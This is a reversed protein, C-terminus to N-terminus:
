SGERPERPERPLGLIREGIITRQIENSGGYISSVRQHWYRAHWDPGVGAPLGDAGRELDSGLARMGLEYIRQQMHSRCLKAIINARRAGTRESTAAALYNLRWCEILAQLKAVEIRQAEPVPGRSALIAWAEDLPRQFYGAPFRSSGREIGLTTNAIRWGENEDAVRQTVPIRVDTLFVEAFGTGGTLQKIPRVEVGDLSLDVLVYSIGKRKPADPDTRVLCFMKNAYGGNSCWTKQGNIVYHDGDREARTRLSALDSGANPESFGQCWVDECSLIRPLLEAQQEATGVAMLTPGLMGLAPYNLRRPAGVRDYEENFIVARLPDFGQGGFEAPWSVANLEAARLRDEWDILRDRGTGQWTTMGAERLNRELWERVELRFATEEDSWRIDV